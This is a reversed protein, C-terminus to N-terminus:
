SSQDILLIKNKSSCYFSYLNINSIVCILLIIIEKSFRLYVYSVM